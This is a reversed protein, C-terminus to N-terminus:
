LSQALECSTKIPKCAGNHSGGLVITQSRLQFPRGQRGTGEAASPAETVDAALRRPTRQPGNGQRGAKSVV